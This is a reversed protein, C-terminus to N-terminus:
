NTSAAKNIKQYEKKVVLMWSDNYKYLSTEDNFASESLNSPVLKSKYKTQAVKIEIYLKRLEIQNEKVNNFVDSDPEAEEMDDVLLEKYGEFKAYLELVANELAASM